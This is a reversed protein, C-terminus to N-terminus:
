RRRRPNTQLRCLFYNLYPCLSAGIRPNIELIKPVGRHLKYNVCCIGNFDLVAVVRAFLGLFRSRCLSTL